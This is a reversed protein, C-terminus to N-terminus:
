SQIKSLHDIEVQYISSNQPYLEQAYKWAAIADEYEKNSEAIKAFFTVLNVKTKVDIKVLGEQYVKKLDLFSVNTKDDLMGLKSVWYETIFPNLKISADIAVRARDIDNQALYVFFLGFYGTDTNYYSLAENYFAVSQYYEGKGFATRANNMATNWKAKKAAEQAKLEETNVKNVKNQLVEEETLEPEPTMVTNEETINEEKVPTNTEVPEITKEKKNYYIVGGIILLLGAISM